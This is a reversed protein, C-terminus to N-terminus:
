FKWYMHKRVTIVFIVFGSRNTEDIVIINTIINNATRTTGNLVMCKFQMCMRHGLNRM